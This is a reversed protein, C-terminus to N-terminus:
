KAEKEPSPQYIRMAFTGSAAVQVRFPRLPMGTLKSAGVGLMEFPGGHEVAMKGHFLTDTDCYKHVHAHTAPFNCGIRASAM